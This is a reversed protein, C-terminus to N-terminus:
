NGAGNDEPPKQTAARARNLRDAGAAKLATNFARNLLEVLIPIDEFNFSSSEDWKNDQIRKFRHVAKAHYFTGYENSHEWLSVDVSSTKWSAIPYKKTENETM